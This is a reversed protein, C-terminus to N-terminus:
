KSEEEQPMVILLKQVFLSFHDIYGDLKKSRDRKFCLYYVPIGSLVILIGIFTQLPEEIAPVIALFICCALFIIPLALNVKIPRPLDPQTKRLYLLALICAGVSLWHLHSVYFILLFVDGWYAMAISTVGTFLLSPIPTCKQVHIYSFFSPLHGEQAGTVFLRASTFLIGNVGGFTSLVVFIPVCISLNGFMKEGFTAAVSPSTMDAPPLVAFYALNAAVYMLTVLPLAIWIARPLNKYPDQLEETVFNLYNWGGFAFLGYYLAKSISTVSYNGEWPNALYTLHGTAIHYLGAIIILLLALLKAATFVNQVAMAGRVSMCNVAMLFSLVVAALTTIAIQPPECDPFFPKVAYQACTLAVIAQTTPRIVWLATWLRLFAALDGFAVLIYAYDGGSRTICTGLEAYSLAGLTSFIGSVAWVLLSLGVSKAELYVGAPSVFIGSGIITGVIIAVGNALTIKRKLKVRESPSSM